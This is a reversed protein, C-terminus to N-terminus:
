KYSHLKIFTAGYTSCSYINIQLLHADNGTGIASRDLARVTKAQEFEPIAPELAM